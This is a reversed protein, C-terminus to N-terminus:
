LRAEQHQLGHQLVNCRVAASAPAAAGQVECWRASPVQACRPVHLADETRGQGLLHRPLICHLHAM